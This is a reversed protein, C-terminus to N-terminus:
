RRRLEARPLGRTALMREHKTEWVALLGALGVDIVLALVIGAAVAMLRACDVGLEVPLTFVGLLTIAGAVVLAIKRRYQDLWRLRRAIVDLQPDVEVLDLTAVLQRAM